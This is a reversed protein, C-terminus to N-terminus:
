PRTSTLWLWAVILWGFVSNDSITLVTTLVAGIEVILMVPNHWMIRPDLKRVAGPFSAYLQRPDFMGSTTSM